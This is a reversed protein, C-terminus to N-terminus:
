AHIAKGVQSSKKFGIALVLRFISIPIFILFWVYEFVQVELPVPTFCLHKQEGTGTAGEAQGM